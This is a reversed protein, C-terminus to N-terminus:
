AEILRTGVGRGRHSDDVFVDCLWAFTVGDTVVRACGIMEGSKLYAGLLLSSECAADTTERARGQAWYSLDSIWHHLAERDFQAPDSSITYDNALDM